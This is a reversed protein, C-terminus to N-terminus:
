QFISFAKGMSSSVSGKFLKKKELYSRVADCMYNSFEERHEIFNPDTEFVITISSNATFQRSQAYWLQPSNKDFALNEGETRYSSIRTQKGCEEGDCRKYDEKLVKKIADVVKDATIRDPFGIANFKNKFSIWVECTSSPIIFILDDTRVDKNVYCTRLLELGNMAKIFFRLMIMDDDRSSTIM